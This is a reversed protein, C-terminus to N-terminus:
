PEWEISFSVIDDRYKPHPLPYVLTGDRGFRDRFEVFAVDPGSDGPALPVAQIKGDIVNRVVENFTGLSEEIKELDPHQAIEDVLKHRKIAFDEKDRRLMTVHCSDPAFWISYKIGDIHEYFSKDNEGMQLGQGNILLGQASLASRFPLCHKTILDVFHRAHIESTGSQETGCGAILIALALLILKTKM